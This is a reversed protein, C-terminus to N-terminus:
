ACVRVTTRVTRWVMAGEKTGVVVQASVPVTRGPRASRALVYAYTFPAAADRRLRKGSGWFDVRAVRRFDSSSSRRVASVRLTFRGGPAVCRVPVGAMRYTALKGTSVVTRTAAAGTTAAASPPPASSTSTTPLGTSRANDSFGDPTAIAGGGVHIFGSVEGIRYTRWDFDGSYNDESVTFTGAVIDVSEVYAVHGGTNGMVAATWWAVDGPVPANLDVAYGRAQAQPGWNTADAKGRVTFEAIGRQSLRYAVYNTCNHGGYAGWFSQIYVDQYGANGLGRVNCDAFGTCQRPSWTIARGPGAHVAMWGLLTTLVAAAILLPRVPVRRRARSSISPGDSRGLM